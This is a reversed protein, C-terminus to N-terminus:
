GEIQRKIVQITYDDKLNHQFLKHDDAIEGGGFFLRLSYGPKMMDKCKEEKLELASHTEPV